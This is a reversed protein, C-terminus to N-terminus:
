NPDKYEIWESVPYWEGNQVEMVYMSQKGLRCTTDEPDHENYTVGLALYGDWGNMSELADVLAERTLDEGARSAAETFIEAAVMGAVGYANPVAGEEGVYDAYWQWPPFDPNDFDALVWAMSQVNEMVEAGLADILTQDANAYTLLKTPETLGFEYAQELFQDSQPRFLVTMVGDVNASEFRSIATSFDTDGSEVSIAEVIEADPYMEITEMMSDYADQGDEAARYLVGLRKHGLEEVMYNVMLNGELLYNPQFPFVYEKPPVALETAGGGQYVFPVGRDNLYDMVALVNPSGLSGVMAFVGDREVMRRTLTTTSSPDFQDDAVKLNVKRGHIGGEKNVHAFYAQMGEALPTGISAVPGSLAQTSGIFIEDESVGPTGEQQGEGFVPLLLVLCFVVSLLMMKR